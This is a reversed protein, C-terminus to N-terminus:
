GLPTSRYVDRVQCRFGFEPLALEDTAHLVQSSWGDLSRRDVAIEARDQRVLLICTCTPHARYIERKSDIVDRDSDSLVEAVLYNRDRFAVYCQFYSTEQSKKPDIQSSL